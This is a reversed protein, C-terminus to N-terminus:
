GPLLTLPIDMHMDLEEKDSPNDRELRLVAETEEEVSFAMEGEFPVFDETMWEGQATAYHSELVEGDETMLRIPFDGEFFWTGRAEGTVTLPTNVQEGEAPTEVTIVESVEEGASDNVASPEDGSPVGCAGIALGLVALAAALVFKTM